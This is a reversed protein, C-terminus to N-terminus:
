TRMAIIRSRRKEHHDGDTVIQVLLRTYCFQTLCKSPPLNQKTHISKIVDLTHRVLQQAQLQEERAVRLPVALHVFALWEM